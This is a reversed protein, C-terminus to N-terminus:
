EGQVTDYIRQVESLVGAPDTQGLMEMLADMQDWEPSRYEKDPVTKPAQTSVPTDLNDFAVHDQPVPTGPACTHLRGDAGQLKWRVGTHVWTCEAHCRNCRVPEMARRSRRGPRWNDWAEDMARDFAEDAFEGM